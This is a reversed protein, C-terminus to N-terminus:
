AGLRKLTGTMLSLRAARLEAGPAPPIGRSSIEAEYAALLAEPTLGTAVCNRACAEQHDCGETCKCGPM